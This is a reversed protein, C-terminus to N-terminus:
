FIPPQPGFVLILRLYRLVLGNCVKNSSFLSISIKYSFVRFFLHGPALFWFDVEFIEFSSYKSTKQWFIWFNFFNLFVGLSYPDSALFWFDVESIQFSFYKSSKQWFIWFNFNKTFFVLVLIKLPGFNFFEGKGRKGKKGKKTWTRSKKLRIFTIGEFHPLFIIGKMYSPSENNWFCGKGVVLVSSSMWISVSIM